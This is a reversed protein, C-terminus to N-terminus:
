KVVNWTKVKLWAASASSLELNLWVREDHRICDCPALTEVKHTDPLWYRRSRIEPQSFQPLVCPEMEVRSREDQPLTADCM